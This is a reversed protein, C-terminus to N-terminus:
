AHADEQDPALVMDTCVPCDYVWVEDAEAEECNACAHDSIKASFKNCEPCRHTYGDASGTRTFCTGDDSCQYLAYGTEITLEDCESCHYAEYWEARPPAPTDTCEHAPPATLPPMPIMPPATPQLMTTIM